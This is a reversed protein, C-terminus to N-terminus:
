TPSIENSPRALVQKFQSGLMNTEFSDFKDIMGKM